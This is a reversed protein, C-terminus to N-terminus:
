ESDSDCTVYLLLKQTRRANQTM